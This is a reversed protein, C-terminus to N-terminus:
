VSMKEIQKETDLLGMVGLAGASVGLYILADFPSQGNGLAVGLHLLSAIAAMGAVTIICLKFFEKM